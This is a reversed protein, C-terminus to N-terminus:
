LANNSYYFSCQQFVSSQSLIWSVVYHQRKAWFSRHISKMVSCPATEGTLLAHVEPLNFRKSIAQHCVPIQFSSRFLSSQFNHVAHREHPKSFQFLTKVLRCQCFRSILTRTTRFNAQEVRHRSSPLSKQFTGAWIMIANISALWSLWKWCGLQHLFTCAVYNAM